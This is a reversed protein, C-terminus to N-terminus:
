FLFGRNAQMPRGGDWDDESDNFSSKMYTSPGYAPPKNVMGVAISTEKSNRLAKNHLIPSDNLELFEDLEILDLDKRSKKYNESLM